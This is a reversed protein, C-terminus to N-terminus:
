LILDPQDHCDLKNSTPMTKCKNQLKHNQLSDTLVTAYMSVIEISNFSEKEEIKGILHLSIKSEYNHFM